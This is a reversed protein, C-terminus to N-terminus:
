VFAREYERLIWVPDLRKAKAYSEWSQPELAFHGGPNLVAYVREFFKILGEDGDNIHIWKSLSFRHVVFNLTLV